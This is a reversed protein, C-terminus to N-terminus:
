ELVLPEFAHQIITGVKELQITPWKEAEAVPLAGAMESTTIGPATPSSDDTQSNMVILSGTYFLLFVLMVLTWRLIM